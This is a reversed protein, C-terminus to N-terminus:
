LFANPKLLLMTMPEIVTPFRPNFKYNYEAIGLISKLQETNAPAAVRIITDVKSCLPSIGPFGLYSLRSLKNRLCKISM